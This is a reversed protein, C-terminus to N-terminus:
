SLFDGPRHDACGLMGAEGGCASSVRRVKVDVNVSCDTMCPEGGMVRPVDGSRIFVHSTIGAAGGQRRTSSVNRPGNRWGM